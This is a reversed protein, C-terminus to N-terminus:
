SVNVVKSKIKKNKLAMKSSETLLKTIQPIAAILGGMGAKTAAASDTSIWTSIIQLLKVLNNSIEDLAKQTQDGLVAPELKSSGDTFEFKKSKCRVKGDKIIWENDFEDKYSFGSKRTYKISTKKSKNEKDQIAVEFGDVVELKIDKETEVKVNGQVYADLKGKKANNFVRISVISEGESEGETTLLIKGKNGDIKSSAGVNDKISNRRIVNHLNQESIKSAKDKPNLIAVIIPKNVKPLNVWVVCSGIGKYSDPFRISQMKDEDVSVNNIFEGDETVISVVHLNLCQQIFVDKDVDIPLSIYGVGASSRAGPIPNRRVSSQKDKM